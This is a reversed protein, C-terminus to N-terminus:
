LWVFGARVRSSFVSEIKRDSSNDYNEQEM